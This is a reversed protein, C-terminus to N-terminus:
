RVHLAELSAPAILVDTHPTIPARLDVALGADIVRALVAGIPYESNRIVAACNGLASRAGNAMLHDHLRQRDEIDLHRGGNSIIEDVVDPDAMRELQKDTVLMWSLSAAAYAERVARLRARLKAAKHFLHWGRADHPGTPASPRLYRESKVEVRTSSGSHFEALFDPTYRRVKGDHQFRITEPQASYTLVNPHCDFLRACREEQGGEVLCHAELKWSYHGGVKWARRGTVIPRVPDGNPHRFLEVGPAIEEWREEIEALKEDPWITKKSPM